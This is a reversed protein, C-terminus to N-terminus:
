QGPQGDRPPHQHWHRVNGAATTLIILLLGSIVAHVEAPRAVGYELFFPSLALFGGLAFLVWEDWVAPHRLDFLAVAAALAGSSVSTWAAAPSHTWIELVWASAVLWSGLLLILLDFWRRRLMPLNRLSRINPIM